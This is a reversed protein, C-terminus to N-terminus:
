RLQGSRQSHRLESRHIESRDESRTPCFVQSIEEKLFLGIDRYKVNGSADREAQDGAFLHQGAGEAVVIVAHQRLLMRERLVNLFGKEGYLEFPTEPILTFNVDQSALTAFAAIFDPM